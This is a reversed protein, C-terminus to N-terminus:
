SSTTSGSAISALVDEHGPKASAFGEVILFEILDELSPRFRRGGLPFHLDGLQKDAAATEVAAARIATTEGYVHLHSEPFGDGKDREFDYRCFCHRMQADLYV